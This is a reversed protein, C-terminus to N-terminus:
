SSDTVAPDLTAPPGHPSVIVNGNCAVFLLMVCMLMLLRLRM